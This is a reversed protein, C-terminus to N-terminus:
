NLSCIMDVETVSIKDMNPNVSVPFSRKPVDRCLVHSSSSFKPDEYEAMGYHLPKFTRFYFDLTTPEFGAMNLISLSSSSCACSVVQHAGLVRSFSSAKVKTEALFSISNAIYKASSIVKVPKVTLLISLHWLLVWNVLKFLRSHNHM